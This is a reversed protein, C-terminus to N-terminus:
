LKQFGYFLLVYDKALMDSLTGRQSNLIEINRENKSINGLIGNYREFSFLWFSYLPGYQRICSVLHGHLHMNHTVRENGYLNEFSICFKMLFNDAVILDDKSIVGNCLYYCALVFYRWCKIDDDPLIDHLAYVSFIITWNKFEEATFGDFSFKDIKCRIKGVDGPCLTKHFQTEVLFNFLWVKRFINDELVLVRFYFIWRYLCLSWFSLWLSM